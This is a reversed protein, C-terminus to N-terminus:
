PSHDFDLAKTIARGLSPIEVGSDIGETEDHAEVPKDELWNKFVQMQYTAKAADGGDVDYYNFAALICVGRHWAQPIDPVDNVGVLPTFIEKLYLEIVYAGDPVPLLQVYDEFRAIKTPKGILTGDFDEETLVNIGVRELELKNTRDWAKYLTETVDSIKYRGVNITTTFQERKRGRTHKFKDRVEEYADNIHGTIVSDVVDTTTPNGIRRRVLAIMDSHKM